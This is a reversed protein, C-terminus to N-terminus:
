NIQEWNVTILIDNSLGAYSPDNDEADWVIRILFTFEQVTGAGINYYGTEVGEAFILDNDDTWNEELTVTLPLTGTMDVVAKYRLAVESIKVGDSNTVLFTYIQQDGPKIDELEGDLLYSYTGAQNTLDVTFVPRAVKASDGNTAVTIYRSFTVGTVMLTLAIFYMLYSKIPLKLKRTNNKM